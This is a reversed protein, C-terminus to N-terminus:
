MCAGLLNIPAVIDEAARLPSGDDRVVQMRTELYARNLDIYRDHLPAINLTFPGDQNVVGGKPRIWQDQGEKQAVEVRVTEKYEFASDDVSVINVGGAATRAASM